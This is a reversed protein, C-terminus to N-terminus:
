AMGLARKIGYAIFILALGGVFGYFVHKLGIERSLFAHQNNKEEVVERPKMHHDRRMFYPIM